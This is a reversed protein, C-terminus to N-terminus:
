RFSRENLNIDKDKCHFECEKCFWEGSIRELVEEKCNPCLIENPNVEIYSRNRSSVVKVKMGNKVVSFVDSSLRHITPINALIAGVATTPEAKMFIMAAPACNNAKLRLIIYPAVTSGKTTPLILVRDKLCENYLEHKKEIVFGTDPDVGGYFTLPTKSVLAFGEAIGKAVCKGYIRM